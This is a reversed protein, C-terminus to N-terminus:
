GGLEGENKKKMLREFQGNIVGELYECFDRALPSDLDASEVKVYKKIEVVPLDVKKLEYPILKPEEEPPLKEAYWEDLLDRLADAKNKCWHNDDELWEKDCKEITDWIFDISVYDLVSPEYVCRHLKCKGNEALMCFEARKECKNFIMAM